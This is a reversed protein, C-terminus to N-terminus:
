WPRCCILLSQLSKNNDCKGGEEKARSLAPDVDDFDNLQNLRSGPRKGKDIMGALKTARRILDPLSTLSGRAETDREADVDLRPPRQTAVMRTPNEEVVPKEDLNVDTQVGSAAQYAQLIQSRRPDVPAATYSHVASADKTTLAQPVTSESSSQEIFGTGGALPSDINGVIPWATEKQGPQVPKANPRSTSANAHAAAAARMQAAKMEMPGYVGMKALKQNVAAPQNVPSTPGKDPPRTTVMAPKGRRGISASRILNQEENDDRNSQRSDRGEEIIPSESLRNTEWKEDDYDDFDSGDDRWMSPMAASSAYSEHAPDARPAEEQIPSVLSINSYYSSAGRRSTPPPGLNASKRAQVPAPAVPPGPTLVPFDPISGFSSETSPRSSTTMPSKMDSSPIENEPEQIEPADKQPSGPMPTYQFAPMPEQLKSGDLISPIKSASPRPPRQPPEGRTTAPQDGNTPVPTNQVRAALPWQPVQTPRSIAVRIGQGNGNRSAALAPPIPQRSRVPPPNQPPIERGRQRVPSTGLADPADPPLGAELLERARKVSGGRAGLPRQPQSM